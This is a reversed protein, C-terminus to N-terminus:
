CRRRDWASITGAAGFYGLTVALSAAPWQATPPLASAVLSALASSSAAVPASVVYSLSPVAPETVSRAAALALAAFAIGAALVYLLVEADSPLGLRRALETSTAWTALTYGYPVAAVAVVAGFGSRVRACAGHRLGHKVAHM